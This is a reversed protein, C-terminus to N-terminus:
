YGKREMRKVVKKALDEGWKRGAAMSDQLIAPQLQVMRRGLDSEYFEILGLIDQHTYHKDYIPIILEVLDDPNIETTLEDWFESPITPYSQKFSNLLNDMVQIGLNASGTIELLKLIDKEKKNLQGFGVQAFLAFCFIFLFKKM